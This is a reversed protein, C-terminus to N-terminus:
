MFYVNTNLKFDHKEILYELFRKLANIVTSHGKEGFNRKSGYEGYSRILEQIENTLESFSDINEKKMVREIWYVYNYITSPYGEQTWDKYDKEKLWQMFKEKSVFIM